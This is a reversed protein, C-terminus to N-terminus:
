TEANRVEAPENEFDQVARTSMHHRRALARIFGGRKRREAPTLHETKEWRRVALTLLEDVRDRM